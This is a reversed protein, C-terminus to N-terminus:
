ALEDMILVDWRQIIGDSGVSYDGIHRVWVSGSQSYGVWQLRPALPIIMEGFTINRGFRSMIQDGFAEPENQSTHMQCWNRVIRDSGVPGSLIAGGHRYNEGAQYTLMAGNDKLHLMLRCAFPWNARETNDGDRFEYAPGEQIILGDGFKREHLERQRQMDERNLRDIENERYDSIISM